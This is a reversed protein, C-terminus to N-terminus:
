LLGKEKLCRDSERIYDCYPKDMYYYDFKRGKYECQYSFEPTERAASIKLYMNGEVSLIIDEHIDFFEHTIRNGHADTSTFSTMGFVEIPLLMERRDAPREENLTTSEVEEIM